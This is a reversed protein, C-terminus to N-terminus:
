RGGRGTARPACIKGAVFTRISKCTIGHRITGAGSAFAHFDNTQENARRDGFVVVEDLTHRQGSGGATDTFRRRACSHSLTHRVKHKEHATEKLTFVSM